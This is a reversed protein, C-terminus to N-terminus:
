LEKKEGDAIAGGVRKGEAPRNGKEIDIAWLAAGVTNTYSFFISAIPVLQLLISVTGFHLMVHRIYAPQNREVFTNKQQNSYSKLQFYRAHYVPGLKRGQVFIFVVTGIIPIFNVPLWILYSVLSKITFKEFPKKVMKGLKGMVGNGDELERGNKVLASMGELLLVGDFIDVLAEDILFTRSLATIIAASESLVLAITSIWAIPGNVFTLLFSQPVYTFLFMSTIVGTSLTLLPLLRSTLPKWLARHTLFYIIGRLPYLYTGTAASEKALATVGTVEDRVAAKVTDKLPM